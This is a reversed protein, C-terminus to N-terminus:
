FNVGQKASRVMSRIGGGQLNGASKCRLSLWPDTAYDHFEVEAIYGCDNVAFVIRGAVPAQYWTPTVAAMVKLRNRVRGYGGATSVDCDFVEPLGQSESLIMEPPESRSLSLLLRSVYGSIPGRKPPEM